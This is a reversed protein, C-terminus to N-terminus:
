TSVQKELAANQGDILRGTETERRQALQLQRMEAPQKQEFAQREKLVTMKFDLLM